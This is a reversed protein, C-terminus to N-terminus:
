QALLTPITGSDLPRMNEETFMFTFGGSNQLAEVRYHVVKSYTDVHVLRVVRAPEWRREAEPRDLPWIMVLDGHKYLPNVTM